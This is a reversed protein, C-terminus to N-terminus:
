RAETLDADRASRLVWGGDADRSIKGSLGGEATLIPLKRDGTAYVCHGRWTLCRGEGEAVIALEKARAGQGGREGM